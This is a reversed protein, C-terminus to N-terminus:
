LWFQMIPGAEVWGKMTQTLHVGLFPLEPDPTPYILGKVLYGREKKLTYYEGRFPIIRLGTKVGMYNAVIDSHLGACNIVYRSEIPGKSTELITNSNKGSAKIV